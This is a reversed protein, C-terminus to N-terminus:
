RWCGPARGQYQIPSELGPYGKYRERCSGKPCWAMRALLDLFVPDRGPGLGIHIVRLPLDTTAGHLTREVRHIWREPALGGHEHPPEAALAAVYRIRAQSRFRSEVTIQINSHIIGVVQITVEDEFEREPLGDIVGRVLGPTLHPAAVVFNPSGDLVPLFTTVDLPANAPPAAAPLCAMCFGEERLATLILKKRKHHWEKYLSPWGEDYHEAEDSKM